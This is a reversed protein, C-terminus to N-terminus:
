AMDYSDIAQPSSDFRVSAKNMMTRCVTTMIHGSATNATIMYALIMGTRVTLSMILVDGAQTGMAIFSGCPHFAVACGQQIM